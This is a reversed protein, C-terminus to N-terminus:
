KWEIDKKSATFKLWRGGDKPIVWWKNQSWRMQEGKYYPKERWRRGAKYNTIKNYYSVNKKIDNNKVTEEEPTVSEVKASNFETKDSNSERNFISSPEVKSYYDINLEWLDVIEYEDVSQSTRGSKRKGVLKIWKRKLLKKRYKKVTKATVGMKKAITQPSAYCTGGESAIRKMVLYLSQEYVTSHNVIYYPVIAFYKKNGSNDIIKSKEQKNEEM